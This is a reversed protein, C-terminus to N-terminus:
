EKKKKNPILCMIFDLVVYSTYFDINFVQSIIWSLGLNVAILGGTIVILVVNIAGALSNEECFAGGIAIIAILVIIEIALWGLDICFYAKGVEAESICSVLFALGLIALRKLFKMLM